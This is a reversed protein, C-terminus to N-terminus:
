VSEAQALHGLTYTADLVLQEGHLWQFAMGPQVTHVVVLDNTGPEPAVSDLAHGDRLVMRDVLPDTFSVEAGLDRLRGAIEVAPSERVDEIGPKYAVGVILIRAGRISKGHDSLLERARQVVRGPRMAISRMAQEILPAETRTSRLQWLLYHPDCPICHGGVGPGPTFKMFGYPKTSAADIVELVDLGLAGAVDALENVLALNVARFTNEHLKTLEAAEPSRVTHIDAAALELVTAARETCSPTVGGLVRPVGASDHGYSGPDIREPSFAIFVDSGVTLGRASIPTALLERTTGVYTTSTLVITQGPRAHAVVVACAARLAALDPAFHNDIPTPVCIIVADVDALADLDHSLDFHDRNLSEELRELDAPGLDVERSRIAALRETCIDIGVVDAGGAALALATPLGVYGLGLVAVRPRVTPLVAVEDVCHDGMTIIDPAASTTPATSTTPMAFIATM